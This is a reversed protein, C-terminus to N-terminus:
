MVNLYFRVFCITFDQLFIGKGKVNLSKMIHLYKAQFYHMHATQNLQNRSRSVVEAEVQGCCQQLWM